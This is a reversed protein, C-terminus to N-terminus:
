KEAPRSFFSTASASLCIREPNSQQFAEANMTILHRTKSVVHMRVQVEEGPILPKHYNVQMSLTPTIGPGEIQSRALFGMAQDLITACMGGHLTGFSNRMWEATSCILTCTGIAHDEELVRFNLLDGITGPATLHLGAVCDAVTPPSSKKQETM